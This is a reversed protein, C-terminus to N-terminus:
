DQTTNSLAETVAKCFASMRDDFELLLQEIYPNAAGDSLAIELADARQALLVAGIMSGAGKTSHAFRRADQRNGEGIATRIANAADHHHDIFKGLLRLYADTKGSLTKLGQTVDLGAIKHLAPLGEQAFVPASAPACNEAAHAPLWLCLTALLREMTFPKAVHDNMGAALCRAKDESFANATMAVIPTTANAPLLRIAQTAELGDMVPMQMDMLILDYTHERVMDLAQQGNAALSVTLGADSLMDRAIEQNIENDEVLLIHAARLAISEMRPATYVIEDEYGAQNRTLEGLLLDHLLSADFPLLISGAVLKSLAPPLTSVQSGEGILFIAPNSAGEQDNLQSLEGPLASLALRESLLVFDYPGGVRRATELRIKAEKVSKTPYARIKLAALKRVAEAGLAETEHVVLARRQILSLPLHTLAPKASATQFKADFWFTSGSGPASIVGVDGQMLHALKRSIALGLGTGGYKRTTAIDAQEFSQFLRQQAEEAIGIGTDRIEFHIRLDDASQEILRARLDISGQETFKLANSAFNLLVQQVRIADGNILAPIHRDIQAHWSLGKETAKPSLLGSITEFVHALAFDSHELTIRDAEIKSLDLIDNILALLHNAAQGAKRLRDAQRPEHIDKQLLQNLGIVANLPTRIEHSMNALFASKARSASEAHEARAELSENLTHIEMNARQLENTRETVLVSLEHRHQELELALKKRETINEKIALYHTIEGDPRRMPSVLESETYFEGTKRRNIMEGRWSEGEALARWMSRYTEVPTQGSSIIRPNQGILEERQYGTTRVFAENIYEIEPVLNTIMISEQSQEVAQSLKRLREEDAHKQTIDKGSGLTGIIRGQADKIVANSWGILREAGNRTIIKNAFYEAGEIEGSMIQLFVPYVRTRGEPQPLCTEFWNKGILDDSSWGLLRCGAANIMSVNGDPDLAVMMTQTTALYRKAMEAEIKASNQAETLASIDHLTLALGTQQEGEYYPRSTAKFTCSAAAYQRSFVFDLAEGDLAVEIYPSIQRYPMDGLVSALSKGIIADPLMGLMEAYAPNIIQHCQAMDLMVLMDGSHEVLRQYRRLKAQQHELLKFHESARHQFFALAVGAALAVFLLLAVLTSTAKRWEAFIAEPDRTVAIVPLQDLNLEPTSVTHMAVMRQEGTALLKGSFLSLPKGSEKHQTFLSGPVALTESTIVKGAPFAMILSGDGHVLMSWMDASYRTSSLLQSFFPVDLTIVAVGAFAGDEGRIARSITFTSVKLVTDFLPSVIRLQPNNNLKAQSFYYRHAFNQGILEDQNAARITGGADLVMLIHTGPFAKVLKKIQNSSEQHRNSETAKLPNSLLTNLLADSIALHRELIDASVSAQNALHAQEQREISDHSRQIQYAFIAALSLLAGILFLWQSRFRDRIHDMTKGQLAKPFFGTKPWQHLQSLASPKEM